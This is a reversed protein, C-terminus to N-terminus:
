RAADTDRAESPLVAVARVPSGDVGPLALPLAILEAGHAPVAALGALNELILGGAGLVLEHVPLRWAGDPGPRSADPSLADTGIVRVGRALLREAVEPALSPHDVADADDFRADWGTEVVVADGARVLEAQSELEAWGIVTGPARDRARLVVLPVILQGLPVADISAGGAISHSPADVHTGSHSGLHLASVAFGDQELTAASEIRVAPDGPFVTMGTRLPRSLDVLRRGALPISM